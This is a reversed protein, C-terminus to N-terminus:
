ELIIRRVGGNVGLLIVEEIEEVREFSEVAEGKLEIKETKM